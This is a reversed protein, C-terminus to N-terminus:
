GASLLFKAYNWHSHIKGAAKFSIQLSFYLLSVNAGKLDTAALGRSISTRNNTDHSGWWQVIVIEPEGGRWFYFIGRKMNEEVIPGMDAFNESISLRISVAYSNDSIM